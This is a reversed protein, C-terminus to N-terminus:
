GMMMALRAVISKVKRLWTAAGLPKNRFARSFEVENVVWRIAYDYFRRSYTRKFDIDRDSSIEWRPAPFQLSLTENWLDTGKIPYSLAVTFLAPLCAKLHRISERIDELKEGPYGLMIFTGAQMGAQQVGRIAKRVLAADVRRNMASLVRDSGSEGGIWVRYCGSQRLLAIGREDLCDARTIIEYPMNLGAKLLEEVFKELWEHQLTFV